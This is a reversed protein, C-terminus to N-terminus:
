LMRLTRRGICLMEIKGGQMAVNHLLIPGRTVTVQFMRPVLFYMKSQLDTLAVPFDLHPM